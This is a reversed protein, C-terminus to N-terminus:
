LTPSAMPETPATTVTPDPTEAGTVAPVPNSNEQIQPGPQYDIPVSVSNPSMQTFMFWMIIFFVILTLIGIWLAMGQDAGSPREDVMVPDNRKYVKTM